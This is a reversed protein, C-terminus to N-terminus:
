IFDIECIKLTAAFVYFISTNPTVLLHCTSVSRGVQIFLFLCLSMLWFQIAVILLSFCIDIIQKCMKFIGSMNLQQLFNM